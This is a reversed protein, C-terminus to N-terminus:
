FYNEPSCPSDKGIQRYESRSQTEISNKQLLLTSLAMAEVGVRVKFHTVVKTHDSM